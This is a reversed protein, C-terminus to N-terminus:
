KEKLIEMHLEALDALEGTVGAQVLENCEESAHNWPKEHWSAGGLTDAVFQRFVADGSAHGTHDKGYWAERTAEITRVVQHRQAGRLDQMRQWLKELRDLNELYFPRTLCPRRGNRDYYVEFRRGASDLFEFDLTSPNISVTEGAQLGAAHVVWRKQVTGDKERWDVPAVRRGASNAKTDDGGPELFLYPYWLDDTTGDGMKTPIRWLLQRGGRALELVAAQNFHAAGSSETKVSEVKWSERRSEYDLMARGADLLARVPIRREAFVLGLHIPLRDRVKGMEDEYKGKIHQALKLADSAPVLMMFTRPEALLPIAASYRSLEQRVGSIRGSALHNLEGNRTRADPNRLVPRRGAAIFDKQLHEQVFAAARATDNYVDPKADLRRAIYGLHEATLLYGGHELPVWVVSLDTAGLELDYVHFRGLDPAATLDIRLRLRDPLLKKLAYEQVENWFRHTTEWIRRLRSFSPNKRTVPIPNANANAPHDPAVVFITDLLRRDLWGSLDFRGVLLALRGNADAVEDTWITTNSKSLAWQESRDARREECINCVRREAAKRSPGQPRLGCVSCIDAARQKKWFDNIEALNPVSNLRQTLLKSLKPLEDKNSKPYAPDQGWWANAELEVHITMEGALKLKPNDKFTAQAFQESILLRLTKGGSDTRELLDPLDPVVFVSGGEDRYVETGLPYTFELLHKVKDLGDEALQRRALMDPIRAVNILFGLGTHNVSLLRWHLDKPDPQSGSLLVGALASKYFAGAMLGWNWLDVENIPRRTDAVTRSFLARVKDRLRERKEAQNTSYDELLEWPLAWLQTTLDAPVGQEFGFPSSIKTGPYNQKGGVPAQKDFHSTKHCRQLYEFPWDTNWANDNLLDTLTKNFPGPFGLTVRRLPPHKDGLTNRPLGQGAPNAAIAQLKEESCKLYDHLWGAAEALFLTNRNDTQALIGLQNM